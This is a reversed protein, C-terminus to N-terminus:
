GAERRLTTEYSFLFICLDQNRMKFWLNQGRELGRGTPTLRGNPLRLSAKFGKRVNRQWLWQWPCRVGFRPSTQFGKRVWEGFPVYNIVLPTLLLAVLLLLVSVCLM